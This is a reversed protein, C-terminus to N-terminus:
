RKRRRRISDCTSTTKTTKNADSDATTCGGARLFADQREALQRAMEWHGGRDLGGSSMSRYTDIVENRTQHNMEFALYESTAMKFWEYFDADTKWEPHNTNTDSSKTNNSSEQILAIKEFAQRIRIFETTSEPSKSVDPHHKLAAKIFAAKVTEFNSNSPINLVSYPNDLSRTTFFSYRSRVHVKLKQRLQLLSVYDSQLLRLM